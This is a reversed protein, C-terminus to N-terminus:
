SLHAGSFSKFSRAQASLKTDSMNPERGDQLLVVAEFCLGKSLSDALFPRLQAGPTGFLMRPARVKTPRPMEVARPTSTPLIANGRFHVETASLLNSGQM